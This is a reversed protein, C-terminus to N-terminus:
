VYLYVNSTFTEVNAKTDPPHPTPPHRDGDKDCFVLLLFNDRYQLDYPGPTGSFKELTDGTTTWKKKRFASCCYTGPVLHNM